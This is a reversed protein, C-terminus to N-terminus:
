GAHLSHRNKPIGGYGGPGTLKARDLGRGRREANFQAWDVHVIRNRDLAGDCGESAGPIATQDHCRARRYERMSIQNDPQCSPVFQGRDVVCGEPDGAAAQGRVPRVVDVLVAAGGAVDIADKLALLGRVQRHLCRCLVLQCDVELGRLREAKSHWRGQEGAGGVHDFLPPLWSDIVEEFWRSANPPSPRRHFSTSISLYGGGNRIACRRRRTAPQRVKWSLAM